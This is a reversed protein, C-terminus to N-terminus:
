FPAIQFHKAAVIGLLVTALGMAVVALNILNEEGKELLTGIM